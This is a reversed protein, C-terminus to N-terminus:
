GTKVLSAMAKWSKTQEHFALCEDLMTQCIFNLNKRELRCPRHIAGDQRTFISAFGIGDPESQQRKYGAQEHM